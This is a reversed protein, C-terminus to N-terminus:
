GAGDTEFAAHIAEVARLYSNGVAMMARRSFYHVHRALEYEGHAILFSICRTSLQDIQAMCMRTDEALEAICVEALHRAREVEGAELLDTIAEVCRVAKEHNSAICREALDGIKMVCLRAVQEPTLLISDVRVQAAAPHAALMVVGVIAVLLM